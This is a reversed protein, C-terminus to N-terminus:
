AAGEKVPRMAVVVEYNGDETAAIEDVAYQGYADMMLMDDKDFQIVNGCWVLNIAKARKLTKVAERVNM